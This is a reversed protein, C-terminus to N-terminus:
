SRSINRCVKLLEQIWYQGRQFIQEKEKEISQQKAFIVVFLTKLFQQWEHIQVDSMKAKKFANILDLGQLEIHYHNCIEQFLKYLGMTDQSRYVKFLQWRVYLYYGFYTEHWSVGVYAQYLGCAIALSMFGLLLLILWHIIRPMMTDTSVSVYGSELVYNIQGEKFVYGSKKQVTGCVVSENKLSEESVPAVVEGEIKLSAVNTQLTKHKKEQSDFYVFQQSSIKFDGPQEAQIIYEFTKESKGADLKQVSSNAEYYKLGVPLKLQPAKMTAFNGVGTIVCTAVIGEGIDGKNKKLSLTARDFQGVATVNKYNKSEPLPMVDVSRACAQVTKESSMGFVDFLGMLGHSFDNSLKYTAQVAPVLLMGTKEPYLKVVWEQYRYEQDKIEQTGSTPNQSIEGVAFNEFKPDIIKLDEFKTLYYFRIKVLLEQGVYLSKKDVTTELFYSQKKVAHTIAADGVRIQVSESTIIAGDKDKISLPGVKFDGIVDSRLAYNFIMRDTRLGNIINTSQSSGYRTVQFNESGPIDDPQQVGNMNDVVVQLMFPVGKEAQRIPNQAMDQVYLRVMKDHSSISSFFMLFVFFKDIGSGIKKM